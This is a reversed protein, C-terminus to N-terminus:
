KNISPQNISQNIMKSPEKHMCTFDEESMKMNQAFLFIGAPPPAPPASGSDEQKLRVGEYAGPDPVTVWKYDHEASFASSGKQETSLPQSSCCPDRSM